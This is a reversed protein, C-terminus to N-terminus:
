RICVVVVAIAIALVLIAVVPVIVAPFVFVPLSSAAPSATVELPVKFYASLPTAVPFSFMIRNASYVTTTACVITRKIFINYIILTTHSVSCIFIIGCTMGNRIM